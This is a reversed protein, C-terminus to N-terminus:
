RARATGRATQGQLNKGAGILSAGSLITNVRNSALYPCSWCAGSERAQRLAAVNFPLDTVAPRGKEKIAKSAFQYGSVPLNGSSLSCPKGSRVWLWRWVPM